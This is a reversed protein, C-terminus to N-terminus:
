GRLACCNQVRKAGERVETSPDRFRSISHEKGKGAELEQELRLIQESRAEKAHMRLLSLSLSLFFTAGICDTSEMERASDDWWV